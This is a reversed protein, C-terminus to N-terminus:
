KTQTPDLAFVDVFSCSMGRVVVLSGVWGGSWLPSPPFVWGGGV